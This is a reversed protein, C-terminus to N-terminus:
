RFEDRDGPQLENAGMGGLHAESEIEAARDDVSQSMFRREEPSMHEWEQAEDAPARRGTLRAWLDKFM